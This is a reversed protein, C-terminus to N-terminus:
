PLVVIDSGEWSTCHYDEVVVPETSAVWTMADFDLYRTLSSVLAIRLEIKPRLKGVRLINTVTLGSIVVLRIQTNSVQDAVSRRSSNSRESVAEDRASNVSAVAPAVSTASTSTQAPSSVSATRRRLEELHEEEKELYDKLFSSVKAASGQLIELSTLAYAPSDDTSYSRMSINGDDPDAEEVIHESIPGFVLRLLPAQPSVLAGTAKLESRGQGDKDRVRADHWMARISTDCMQEAAQRWLARDEKENDNTLAAEAEKVDRRLRLQIVLRAMRGLAMVDAGSLTGSREFINQIGLVFQAGDLPSTLLSACSHLSEFTHKMREWAREQAKPPLSALADHKIRHELLDVDRKFANCDNENLVEDEDDNIELLILFCLIAIKDACIYVLSELCLPEVM